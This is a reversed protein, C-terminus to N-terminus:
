CCLGCRVVGTTQVARGLRMVASRGFPGYSASLLRCLCRSPSGRRIRIRRHRAPAPNTASTNHRRAATQVSGSPRGVGALGASRESGALPVGCLQVACSRLVRGKNEALVTVDSPSSGGAHGILASPRLCCGGGPHQTPSM